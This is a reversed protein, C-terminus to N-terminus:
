PQGAQLHQAVEQVLGPWPQPALALLSLGWSQFFFSTLNQSSCIM